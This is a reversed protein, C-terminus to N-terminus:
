AGCTPDSPLDAPLAHMGGPMTQSWAGPAPCDPSAGPLRTVYVVPRAPIFRRTAPYQRWLAYCAAFLVGLDKLIRAELLFERHRDCCCFFDDGFQASAAHHDQDIFFIPFIFTIQHQGSIKHGRFGDIEHDLMRAPQYTQRQSFFMAVSEVQRHHRSAVASLETGIESDRNFGGFTHRCTNRGCVACTRYLHRSRGVGTSDINHLGAMDERQARLFTAYQHTGSMGLSATIQRLHSTQSRCRHDTFNELIVASHRSQRVQNFKGGFMIELDTGNGIQNVIAVLVLADNFTDGLAFHMGHMTNKLRNGVTVLRAATSVQREHMAIDRWLLFRQHSYM